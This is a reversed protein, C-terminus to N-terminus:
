KEGRMLSLIEKLEFKRAVKNFVFAEGTNECRFYISPFASIGMLKVLRDGVLVPFKAKTARKFGALSVGDVNVGVLHVKQEKVISKYLDEVQLGLEISSSENPKFFFYISVEGKPDVPVRGNYENRISARQILDKSKEEISQEQEVIKGSKIQEKKIADIEDYYSAANSNIKEIQSKYSDSFSDFLTTDKKSLKVAKAFKREKEEKEKKEKLEKELLYRYQAVDTDDSFSGQETRGLGELALKQFAITKGVLDSEKATYNIYQKAYKFALEEDGAQLAAIIGKFPAPANNEPYYTLDEEPNGYQSIIKESKTLEKKNSDVVKSNQLDDKSDQTKQDKLSQEEKSEEDKVRFYEVKQQDTIKSEPLFVSKASGQEFFAKSQGGANADLIFIFLILINCFLIRKM